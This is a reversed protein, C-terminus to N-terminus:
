LDLQLGLEVVRDPPIRFYTTASLANRSLFAFVKEQAEGMDGRDSPVLTERGIYYIVENPDFDPLHIMGVREIIAPADPNEMFGYSAVVRWLGLQLREVVIREADRVAPTHTYNVTLLIVTEHLSRNHKLHHVLIPPAQELSSAMFVSTGDVRATRSSDIRKYLREMSEAREAYRQRVLARGQKWTVMVTFIVAGMALPIWAGDFFKLLNALLYPLEISHFLVLLPLAKARSWGWSHRAVKYFGISTITMTGIVAMGYASALATSEKFTVVLTICALALGWNVEPLYIQGETDRSTHWITVRPFYGLQVAQNTLSFVGSIMSQSAIVTAATALVVLAYTAPGRPVMAFFPNSAVEPDVLLLAAQGLYNLVLAPGVLGYFCWTIPKRGFHGMDAYLAECGTIALAVSGLVGVVSWGTDQLMAFAYIPNFAALVAPHRLIAVLGMLGLSGFWLMMVPGFMRGITDTGRRQVAFLGFLIICTLPVVMSDFTDTAVSIGEIASLVSIAPTIMADGFLLAGGMLILATLATIEGPRRDRRDPVQALLALVGGEGHNDARLIFTLYKVGVVLIISWLMLSAIGLVHDPTPSIGHAGHVSEKFAYLPSTGIDGFVVGLAALALARMTQPNAHHRPAEGTPEPPSLPRDPAAAPPAPPGASPPNM